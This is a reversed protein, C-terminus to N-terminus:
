TRQAADAATLFGLRYLERASTVVSQELEAADLGVEETVARILGRLSHQGDLRLLVHIALPEIVGRLGVGEDLSMQVSDVTFERQRYVMSQHLRHGDVLSFTEDLLLADDRLEQMRRQAAFVRLVHASASEQPAAPMTDIRFWTEGPQKELIIAGSAIQEIHEAEFYSLWRMVAEEFQAGGERHALENWRVAYDLPEESEHHLVWANCGGGDLWTRVPGAPDEKGHIWSFLIAARGGPKLRAAAGSIVSASVADRGLGSDRFTFASDPSVVFPPNAIILDFTEDEVPEFLNGQRFEINEIGNLAANLRGFALARESIDTAIVRDAHSAALLAQIGCGTGLDLALGVRERVTLGALTRSAPGLGPVCDARIPEEPDHAVLLDGVPTVRVEAHYRETDTRLLGSDMLLSAAGPPLNAEMEAREMSEGLLLLRILVPLAGERALRRSLWSVHSGPLRLPMPLRLAAAVDQESYNAAALVERLRAIAEPPTHEPGRASTM